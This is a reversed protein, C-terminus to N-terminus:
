PELSPAVPGIDVDGIRRRSRYVLVFATIGGLALCAVLGLGIGLTVAVTPSGRDIGDSSAAVAPASAADGQYGLSAKWDADLEEITVELSSQVAEDYSMEARFSALLTGLGDDGWRDIIYAVISESEAYSLLAQDPDLPFESNLARVPILEGDRVARDLIGPFRDDPTEQNYVALGEDLWNPPVNFPNLTAQHVILHTIEHPIVRRIEASAGSQADIGTVILRLDPYAQGGIWEASNAPLSDAYDANDAYIVIRVPDFATLQFRSELSEITRTATDVIDQAFDESGSYWYLTVLGGTLTRWDHSGDMYPISQPQTESVAGGADTVRWFWEIDVGPPLYNVTMDITHDLTVQAGPTFEPFAISLADTTSAHWYLEVHKIENASSVEVHFSLSDPFDARATDNSFTVPEATVAPQIHAIALLTALLVFAAIPHWQHDTWRRDGNRATSPM